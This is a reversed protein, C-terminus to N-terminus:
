DVSHHVVEAHECGEHVDYHIASRERSETLDTRAAHDAECATLGTGSGSAQRASSRMLHIAKGRV